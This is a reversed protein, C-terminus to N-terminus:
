YFKLFSPICRLIRYLLVTDFLRFSSHTILRNEDVHQFTGGVNLLQCVVELLDGVTVYKHGSHAQSLEEWDALVVREIMIDVVWHLIQRPVGFEEKELHQLQMKPGITGINGDKAFMHGRLTLIRNDAHQAPSFSTGQSARFPFIDSVDHDFDDILTYIPM